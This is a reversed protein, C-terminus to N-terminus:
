PLVSGRRAGSSVAYRPCWTLVITRVHVAHTEHMNEVHMGDVIRRRWRRLSTEWVAVGVVSRCKGDVAGRLWPARAISPSGAPDIL